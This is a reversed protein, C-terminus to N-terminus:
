YQICRTVNLFIFIYCFLSVTLTCCQCTNYLYQTLKCLCSEPRHDAVSSPTWQSGRHGTGAHFTPGRLRGFSGCRLGGHSPAVANRSCRLLGDCSEVSKCGHLLLGDHREATNRDCQPLGDRREVANYDHCLLGDHREVANCDCELEHDHIAPGTIKITRSGKIKIQKKWKSNQGNEREYRISKFNRSQETKRRWVISTRTNARINRM